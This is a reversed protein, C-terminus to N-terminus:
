WDEILFVNIGVWCKKAGFFPAFIERFSQHVKVPLYSAHVIGRTKQRTIKENKWTGVSLHQMTRRRGIAPLCTIIPCLFRWESIYRQTIPPHSEPRSSERGTDNDDLEEVGLFKRENSRLIYAVCTRSIRKWILRGLHSGFMCALYITLIKCIIDHFPTFSCFLDAVPRWPADRYLGFLDHLIIKRQM